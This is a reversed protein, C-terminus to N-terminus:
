PAEALLAEIEREYKARVDDSFGEHVERIIGKRDILFSTPMLKVHLLSESNIAGPDVLIPLTVKLTEFFKSIQTADEDVNIAYVKLGRDAFQKSLGEYLPLADRCPECWTAWVDLLVVQGRDGSLKWRPGGELRELGLEGPASGTPPPKSQATLSRESTTSKVTSLELATCGDLVVLMSFWRLSLRM